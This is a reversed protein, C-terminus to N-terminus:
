ASVIIFVEMAFCEARIASSDFLMANSVLRSLVEKFIMELRDSMYRGLVKMAVMKLV